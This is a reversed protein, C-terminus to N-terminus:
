WENRELRNVLMDWRALLNSVAVPFQKKEVILWQVWQMASLLTSAHDLTQFLSLRMSSQTQESYAQFLQHRISASNPFMTGLLRVLDVLPHDLRAAGFDIVGTVKAGSFLMHERHIDRLVFFVSSMSQHSTLQRSLDDADQTFCRITRLTLQTLSVQTDLLGNSSNFQTLLLHNKQYRHILEIREVIAPIQVQCCSHEQSTRHLEVLATMASEGHEITAADIEVPAGELWTSLEWFGGDSHIFTEGSHTKQLQPVFECTRCLLKQFAHLQELREQRMTTAPHAKLAFASAGARIKWVRSSSLGGSVMSASDATQVVGWASRVHAPLDNM